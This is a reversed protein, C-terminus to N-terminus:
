EGELDALAKHLSHASVASDMMAAQFVKISSKEPIRIIYVLVQLGESTTGALAWSGFDRSSWSDGLLNEALGEPLEGPIRAAVSWIDRVRTNNETDNVLLVTHASVGVTTEGVGPLELIVRYDGESDISYELNLKELQREVPRGNQCSQFFFILFLVAPVAYRYPNSNLTMLNLIYLLM